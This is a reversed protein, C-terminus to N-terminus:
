SEADPPSPRQALAAANAPPRGWATWTTRAAGRNLIKDLAGTVSGDAAILQRVIMIVVIVVAVAAGGLAAKKPVEGVLPLKIDDAAM